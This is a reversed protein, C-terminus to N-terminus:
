FPIYIFPPFMGKKNKIAMSDKVRADLGAVKAISSPMDFKPNRNSFDELVNFVAPPIEQFLPHSLFFPLFNNFGTTTDILENIAAKVIVISKSNQIATFTKLAESTADAQKKFSSESPMTTISLPSSMFSYIPATEKFLLFFHKLCCSFPSSYFVSLLGSMKDAIHRFNLYDLLTVPYGSIVFKSPTSSGCIKSPLNSPTVM